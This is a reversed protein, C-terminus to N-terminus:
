LFRLYTLGNLLDGPLSTLKNNSFDRCVCDVCGAQTKMHESSEFLNQGTCSQRSMKERIEECELNGSKPASKSNTLHFFMVFRELIIILFPGGLPLVFLLHLCMSYPQQDSCVKRTRNQLMRVHGARPQM